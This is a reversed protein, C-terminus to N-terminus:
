SWPPFSGRACFLHELEESRRTVFTDTTFTSSTSRGSCCCVRRQIRSRRKWGIWRCIHWLNRLSRRCEDSMRDRNTPTVITIIWRECRGIQYNRNNGNFRGNQLAQWSYNSRYGRHRWNRRWEAFTRAIFMCDSILMQSGPRYFVNYSFSWLRLFLRIQHRKPAATLPKKVISILLKHDTKVTM